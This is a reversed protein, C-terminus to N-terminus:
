TMPVTLAEINTKMLPRLVNFFQDDKPDEPFKIDIRKRPFGINIAVLSELDAKLEPTNFFGLWAPTTMNMFDLTHLQNGLSEKAQLSIQEAIGRNWEQMQKQAVKDGSAAKNAIIELNPFPCEASSAQKRLEESARSYNGTRMDFPLGPIAKLLNAAITNEIFDCVSDLAPNRSYGMDLNRLEPLKDKGPWGIVIPLTYATRNVKNEQAQLKAVDTVTSVLKAVAAVLSTRDSHLWSLRDNKVINNPNKSETNAVCVNLGYEGFSTAVGYFKPSTVSNNLM